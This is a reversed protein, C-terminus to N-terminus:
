VDSYKRIWLRKRLSVLPQTSAIFVMKTLTCQFRVGYIIHREELLQSPNTTYSFVVVGYARKSSRWQM